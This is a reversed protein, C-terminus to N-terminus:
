YKQQSVFEVELEYPTYKDEDKRLVKFKKKNAQTGIAANYENISTVRKGDIEVILDKTKLGAKEAPSESKVSIVYLGFPEKIRERLSCGLYLKSESAECIMKNKKKSFLSLIFFLGNFSFYLFNKILTQLAIPNFLNDMFAQREFDKDTKSKEIFHSPVGKYNSYNFYNHILSPRNRADSAFELDVIKQTGAAGSGVLVSLIRKNITKVSLFSKFM